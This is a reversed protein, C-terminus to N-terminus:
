VARLEGVGTITQGDTTTIAFVLNYTTGATVDAVDVMGRQKDQSVVKESLTIAKSDQETVSSVAVVSTGENLSDSFDMALSITQSAPMAAISIINSARNGESSRLLRWVREPGIILSTAGTPGAQQLENTDALIDELVSRDTVEIGGTVTIRKKGLARDTAGMDVHAFVDVLGETTWLTETFTFHGLRVGTGEAATMKQDGEAPSAEWAGSTENWKFGDSIREATFFVTSASTYFAEFTVAM